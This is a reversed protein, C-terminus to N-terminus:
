TPVIMNKRKSEDNYRWSSNLSTVGINIDKISYRLNSALLDYTYNDKMIGEYYNKEFEKVDEIRQFYKSRFLKPEKIFTSVKSEDTMYNNEIGEDTLEDAKQTNVDHNGPTFVFRDATLKLRNCIEDVVETKFTNLAETIGGTFDKGGKDIMDGSFVVLDIQQNAKKIADLMNQLLTKADEVYKGNLHFDSFHLIRIPQKEEMIYQKTTKNM